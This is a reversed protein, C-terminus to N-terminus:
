RGDARDKGLRIWTRFMGVAEELDPLLRILDEAPIESTQNRLEPIERRMARILRFFARNADNAANGKPRLVERVVQAAEEGAEIRKALKEQDWKDLQAVKGADILTVDGKDFAQQVVAPAQLALLYRRASRVSLKLRSAVAAIIEEIGFSRPGGSRSDQEIEMRRAIARARALPSLHRRYLNDCILEDEVTTDEAEALDHRVIVEVEKWGLLKAANIRQHGAIVTGNPLVEVPQRQGRKQMDAALAALEAEPIDGFLEAQQPHPKCRSIKWKKAAGEGRHM